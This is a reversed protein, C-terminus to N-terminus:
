PQSPLEIVTSMIQDLIIRSMRDAPEDYASVVEMTFLIFDSSLIELFSDLKITTEQEGPNAHSVGKRHLILWVLSHWDVTWNDTKERSACLGM